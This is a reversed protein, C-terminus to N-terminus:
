GPYTPAAFSIRRVSSTLLRARLPGWFAGREFFCFAAAPPWLTGSNALGSVEKCALARRIETETKCCDMPLASKPRPDQLLRYCFLAVDGLSSFMQKVGFAVSETAFTFPLSPGSESPRRSAKDAKQFSLLRSAASPPEGFSSGLEQAFWPDFVVVDERGLASEVTWHAGGIKTRLSAHDLQVARETRSAL